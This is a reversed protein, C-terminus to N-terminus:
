ARAVTVPVGSFAANGSLADVVQEDTLDNLSAGAHSAAVSLAAGRRAHGWGHPLSVVGPAVDSTVHAPVEVAGVRSTVTVRDGDRVGRAAADDPHVLLVCADRGKVLRLSNHMWSNNSRLQRRGILLLGGDAPAGAALRAELRPVDDLFRQPALAIRKGRTHLAAPFRPELPGLDLGHPAQELKRLSLRHRGLRLLLDLLRREGMGHAVALSLDLRRSPKGGGARRVRRALDLLLDFDGRVGPPPPVVPRVYRAANRVSLLYFALDYHDREFGFSTPLILSAHRTTENRYLDISVMYELGALARDLRAGNPTSLVPNGAFTVLARIRGDGDAEIEEALAAAPLEGGFEPLGRVRSKWRAFHGREGLLTALRVLDAAPTTLMFGGARDLNGTVANLAVVLWATLAGFEQTCAGVRGYAVAAPADSFARALSRLEDAPIATAAAVREPPFTRAVAALDDIGDTFSALRGPRVRGEEFLVCLMALLLLADGGPRIALHRDARAATETRRPDAVVLRGGRARLAELRRAIGGATMLSGNSALPNAGLVLFFRTRDVDPVPLLLQHGFMELAALMHPLQDVSTASFRARTGLARGFFPLALLAGYSHVSPNGLYVGVANRGFRRQIAALREAAEGLAADWSVREWREGSRRMPERVRDPDDQVDAIAAAKPCLHGRSFPDDADGRVARVAGGEVEVSLGCVAECLMCTHLQAPM